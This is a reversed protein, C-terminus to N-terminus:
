FLDADDPADLDRYEVIPRGAYPERPRMDRQKPPYTRGNGYAVPPPRHHFQPTSFQRGPDAHMPPRAGYGGYGGAPPAGPGHGFTAPLKQGEPPGPRFPDMLYNNYYAVENKVSDVKEAHKNFIHKRVYDPGKFKKGSLPCLWKDKGLEQTNANVFKEVESAEDKFGLKAAEEQTLKDKFDLIPILKENFRKQFEAIDDITLKNPPTPGRAHIIGCRNPMEDENPYQSANYYDVSHVIRLYYLLKDLQKILKEDRQLTVFGPGSDNAEGEERQQQKMNGDGLLEDEEASSEDVLFESINILWPNGLGSSDTAMSGKEEGGIQEDKNEWLKMKKDLHMILRAVTKLDAKACSKHQSIGSIPRVRRALDRNVVPNLELERLRINNLNWCIDKINVNRDFTVWCRRIFRNHDELPQSFAVRIFGTFKKCLNIIDNRTVSPPLNRMFISYTQHLARPKIEAEEVTKKEEVPASAQDAEEKKESEETKEKKEKDDENDSSDSSSSSGSSDGSDSGEEDYGRYGRGRKKKKKDKSKTEGEKTEAPDEDKNVLQKYLEAQKKLEQQEETLFDVKLEEPKSETDGKQGDEVPKEDNKHQDASRSNEDGQNDEGSRELVKLDEDSGDEMFIVASDLMKVIKEENLLDLCLDKLFGKEVLTNFIEARWKVAKQHEEERKTSEEPHYKEKFWEEEKHAIFFQQLQQRKFNIKYETYNRIAEEDTIDDPQSGLWQKFTLMRQGLKDVDSHPGKRDGQGWEDPPRFGPRGPEWGPTSSWGGGYGPEFGRMRKRARMEEERGPSFRRKIDHPPQGSFEPRRRQMPDSPMPPHMTSRKMDPGSANWGRPRERSWDREGRREYIDSRERRFKERRQHDFEDGSDGMKM